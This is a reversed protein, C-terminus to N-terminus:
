TCSSSGSVQAEQEQKGREEILKHIEQAQKNIVLKQQALQLRLTIAEVATIVQGEDWASYPPAGTASAAGVGVAGAGAAAAGGAGGAAHSTSSPAPASDM